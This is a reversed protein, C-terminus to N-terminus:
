FDWVFNNGSTELINEIWHKVEAFSVITYSPPIGTLPAPLAMDDCLGFYECPRGYNYCSRGNKPAKPMQSFLNLMGFRALLSALWESATEKTILKTVVDFQSSPVNYLVYRYAIRPLKLYTGVMIAYAILQDQNSYQIRMTALQPEGTKYDVVTFTPKPSDPLKINFAHDLSGIYYFENGDSQTHLAFKRERWDQGEIKEMDALLGYNARVLDRLAHVINWVSRSSKPQVFNLEYPWRLFATLIASDLDRTEILEAIAEGFISGFAAAVHPSLEGSQFKIGTLQFRRPCALFETTFSHSLIHVM